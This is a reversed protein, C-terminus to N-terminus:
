HLVNTEREKQSDGQGSMLHLNKSPWHLYLSQKNKSMGQRKLMPASLHTTESHLSTQIHSLIQNTHHWIQPLVYTDSCECNSKAGKGTHRRQNKKEYMEEDEEDDEGSQAKSYFVKLLCLRFGPIFGSALRGDTIPTVTLVVSCFISYDRDVPQFFVQVQALHNAYVAGDKFEKVRHEM